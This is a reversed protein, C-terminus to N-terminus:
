NRDKDIIFKEENNVIIKKVFGLFEINYMVNSYPPALIQNTDYNTYGIPGYAKYFPIYLDAKWGKKMKLLAEYFIPQSSSGVVFKLSDNVDFFRGKPKGLAMSDMIFGNYKVAITDSTKVYNVGTSVMSTSDIKMFVGLSTSDKLAFGMPVIFTFDFEFKRSAAIDHYVKLLTVDYVRPKFDVFPTLTSPMVMIARGGEKMQVIGEVLGYLSSRMSFTFPDGIKLWRYYGSNLVVTTDSSDFIEGDLYQATYKIIAYDSTLSASDGTGDTQSIFYLGDENQKVSSRPYHTSIYDEVQKKEENIKETYTDKVCSSLMVMSVLFLLYFSFKIVKYM